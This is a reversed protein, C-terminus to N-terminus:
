MSDVRFELTWQKTGIQDAKGIILSSGATGPVEVGFYGGYQGVWDARCARLSLLAGNPRGWPHPFFVHALSRATSTPPASLTTAAGPCRIM